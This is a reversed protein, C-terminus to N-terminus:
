RCGAARRCFVNQYDDLNFKALPALDGGSGIRQFSYGFASLYDLIDEQRYGAAAASDKQIEIILMPGFDELTRRAGKLCPLESGEVDIKIIDVCLEPRTRLWDDLTTLEITQLAQNESHATYLSGLGHHEDNSQEGQWSAYILATGQRDSLGARVVDAQTLGNRDIHSQLKDALAKIPEFAIVRGAPGARKAAVLAIEGINAGVDIVTMNREIIRDLLAVIERSYYGMWFIRRQMHESLSLDIKLDGDFDDVEIVGKACRFSRRLLSQLVHTHGSAAQRNGIKRLIKLTQEKM